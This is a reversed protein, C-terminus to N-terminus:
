IVPNGERTKGIERYSSLRYSDKRPERQQHGPLVRKYQIKVNGFNVLLGIASNTLAIYRLVQQIEQDRLSDQSRIVLVVDGAVMFDIDASGVEVNKYMVKVSKSAEFELNKAKFETELAKRYFDVPYGPGLTRHAEMCAGIIKYVKENVEKMLAM